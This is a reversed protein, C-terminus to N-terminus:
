MDIKLDRSEEYTTRSSHMELAEDHLRLPRQNNRSPTNTPKSLLRSLLRPLKQCLPPGLSVDLFSCILKCLEVKGLLSGDGIHRWLTMMSDLLVSSTGSLVRPPKQCSPNGFSVNLFSCILKLIEVKKPLAGDGIHRSLTM